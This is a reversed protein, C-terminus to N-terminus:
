GHRHRALFANVLSVTKQAVTAAHESGDWLYAFQKTFIANLQEYDPTARFARALRQGEIGVQRHAPPLTPDTHAYFELASQRAPFYTSALIEESKVSALFRLLQWAQDAQKTHSSVCWYAGAAATSLRPGKGKPNVALDWAFKAQRYYAASAVPAFLMALKGSLFLTQPNQTTLVAPTPAVKYKAILDQMFQLAEVAAPQNILCHTFSEDFIHGGNTYIWQGWGGVFGTGVAFGYQASGGTGRTLKKATELFQAFDWGSTKWDVPPHAVEMKDFLDVNWYICQNSFGRPLAVTVGKWRMRDRPLPFFDTLNYKDRRIYSDLPLPVHRDALQPLDQGLLAFVDPLVDGAAMTLVKTLYSGGMVPQLTVPAEPHVRNWEGTVNKLLLIGQSDTDTMFTLRRTPSGAVASSRASSAHSTATASLLSAVTSSTSPSPRTTATGSGCAALVTAGIALAAASLCARRSVLPTLTASFPFLGATSRGTNAQVVSDGTMTSDDRRERFGSDRTTVDRLQDQELSPGTFTHNSLDLATITIENRSTDSLPNGYLGMLM